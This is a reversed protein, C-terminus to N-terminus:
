APQCEYIGSPTVSVTYVYFLDPKKRADVAQRLVEFSFEEEATLRLTKRIAKELAERDQSPTLKLQTIRIM